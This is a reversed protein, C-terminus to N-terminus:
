GWYQMPKEFSVGPKLYQGAGPLSKFKECPTMLNACRTRSGSAPKLVPLSRSASPSSGTLFARLEDLSQLRQSYLKM